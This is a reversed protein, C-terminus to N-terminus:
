TFCILQGGSTQFCRNFIVKSELVAPKVGDQNILNYDDFLLIANKELQPLVFNIAETTPKYLDFDFHVFSYTQHKLNNKEEESLTDPFYCCILKLNCNKSVLDGNLKNELDKYNFDRFRTKKTFPKYTGKYHPDLNTVNEKIQDSYEGFSDLAFINTNPKIFKSITSITGGRDVGFEIVSTKKNKFIENHIQILQYLTFNRERDQSSKKKISKWNNLFEKPYDLEAGLFYKRLFWFTDSLFIIIKMQLSEPLIKGVFSRLLKFM